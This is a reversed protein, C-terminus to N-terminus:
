KIREIKYKVLNCGYEEMDQVTLEKGKMYYPVSMSLHWYEDALVALNIPLTGIITNGKIQDESIRSLLIFEKFAPYHKKVWAIAGPHRSVIFKM